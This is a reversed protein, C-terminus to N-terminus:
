LSCFSIHLVCRAGGARKCEDVAKQQAERQDASTGWGTIDRDAAFAACQKNFSTQVTCAKGRQACISLAEKEATARDGEGESWGAGMDGKSYAIAGWSVASPARPTVALDSGGNAGPSSCVSAQAECSKGGLRTCEAVARQEASYKTGATGWFVTEGAAAIAGCINHFSAEIQCKVGGQKVCNQLALKEATAKDGQEYTFGWLKDKASYAIAGYTPASYQGKCRIQCLEYKHANTMGSVMQYAQLCDLICDGADATSVFTPRVLLSASLLLLIQVARRM